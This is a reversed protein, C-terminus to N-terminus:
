PQKGQKLEESAMAMTSLAAKLNSEADILFNAATVVKEGEKLGNLIAVFGGGRRGTKVEKPEFRGEERDILVIRRAGNDIVANEPVSIELADTGIDIEVLAYMNPLLVLEPNDVEIRVKTTRTEMNVQPYILSVRGAFVQEPGHRMRITATAGPRFTTSEQEPIDALVWLKTADAIRFLTAGSAMKMGEIVNRELVIGDRPARWVINPPVKRSREIETIAEAPVGLNELRKRAGGTAILRGDSTLETIFQAAAAAIETSFLTVLPQNRTVLDGTTVAEVKEVFTDVRASLVSIRREDLSVIGPARLTEAIRRLTAPESRVGARQVKGPSLRVIGSEDEEGEFVPIYDMGMSDKKPVPSTDPLGMPNRYFRIKGPEKATNGAAMKTAVPEFSVEESALVPLYAKGTGNHKPELSYFPGDPDRYYLISGAPAPTAQSSAPMSVFSSHTLLTLGRQGVWYGGTGAALIAALILSGSVPKNM